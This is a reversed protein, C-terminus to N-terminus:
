RKPQGPNTISQVLQCKEKGKMSCIQAPVRAEEKDRKAPKFILSGESLHVALKDPGAEITKHM